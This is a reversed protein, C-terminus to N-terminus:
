QLAFDNAMRRGVTIKMGGQRDGGKRGEGGSKSQATKSPAGPAANM